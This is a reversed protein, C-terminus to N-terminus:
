EKIRIHFDKKLHDRRMYLILYYPLLSGIAVLALLSENKILFSGAVLVAVLVLFPFLYGYLVARKGSSRSMQLTVLDGSNLDRGQYNEIEVIKEEMDAINCAGKAHCGSCASAQLIKVLVRKKERKIVMGPHEIMDIIM